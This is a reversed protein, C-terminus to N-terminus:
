MNTSHVDRCCGREERQERQELLKLFNILFNNMFDFHVKVTVDGSGQSVTCVNLTLPADCTEEDEGFIGCQIL